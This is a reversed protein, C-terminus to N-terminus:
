NSKGVVWIDIIISEYLNQPLRKGTLIRLLACHYEIKILPVVRGDIM